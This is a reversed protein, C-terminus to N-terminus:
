CPWPWSSRLLSLRGRSARRGNPPTFFDQLVM